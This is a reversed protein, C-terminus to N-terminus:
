SLGHAGEEVVDLVAAEGLAEDFVLVAATLLELLEAGLFAAWWSSFTPASSRLAM